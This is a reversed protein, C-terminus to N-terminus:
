SFKPKWPQSFVRYGYSPGELGPAFGLGVKPCPALTHFLAWPLRHTRTSPWNRGRPTFHRLGSPGPSKLHHGLIGRPATRGGRGRPTCGGTTLPTTTNTTTTTTTTTPEAAALNNCRRQPHKCDISRQTPGMGVLSVLSLAEQPNTPTLYTM